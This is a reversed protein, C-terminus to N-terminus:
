SKLKMMDRSHMNGDVRRIMSQSKEGRMEKVTKDDAMAPCRRKKKGGFLEVM